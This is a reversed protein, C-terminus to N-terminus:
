CADAYGPALIYSQEFQSGQHAALGAEGMDENTKLFM